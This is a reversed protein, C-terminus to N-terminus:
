EEEDEFLECAPEYQRNQWLYKSAPHVCCGDWMSYFSCYLCEKKMVAWMRVPVVSCASLGRLVGDM